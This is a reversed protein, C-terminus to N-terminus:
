QVFNSVFQLAFGIALLVLGFRFLGRHSKVEQEDSFFSLTGVPPISHYDMNWLILVGAIDSLLGLSNLVVHWM